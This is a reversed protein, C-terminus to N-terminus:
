HLVRQEQDAAPQSQDATTQAVPSTKRWEPLAAKDVLAKIDAPRRFRAGADGLHEAVTKLRFWGAPTVLEKGLGDPDKFTFVLNGHHTRAVELKDPFGETGAPWTFLRPIRAEPKAWLLALEEETLMKRKKLCEILPDLVAWPAPIAGSAHLLVVAYAVTERRFGKGGGVHNNRPRHFTWMPEVGTLGTVFTHDTWLGLDCALDEAQYNAVFIGETAFRKRWLAAGPRTFGTPKARTEILTRRNIRVETDKM